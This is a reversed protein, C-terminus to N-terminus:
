NFQALIDAARKRIYDSPDNAALQVLDPKIDPSKTKRAWELGGLRILYDSDAFLVRVLPAAAPADQAQSIERAFATYLSRDKEKGEAVLRALLIPMSTADKRLLLGFAVVRYTSESKADDVCAGLFGLADPGGMEALSRFAETRVTKEPDSKAKYIIAPVADALHLKACAKCAAVRVQLANDRLAAEIATVAEQDTFAALADIASARVNLDDGNAAAVLAPIARVDHIKGLSECAYMRTSKGQANDQVLKMLRDAAKASGIDGLSRIASQKLDDTAADSDLYGILLDEEEPGGARGMLRIAGPLLKKDADHLIDKVYVLAAKSRIEALYSLAAAVLGTDQRDRSAVLDVADQEAGKWSLDTYFGLIATRLKASRSARLLKLIDDNFAGNKEGDLSQLLDTIESEIGYRLTDRRRDDIQQQTEPPTAQGAAVSPVPQGAAATQAALMTAPFVLGLALLVSGLRRTCSKM